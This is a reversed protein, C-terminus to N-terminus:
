KKGSRRTTFFKILEMSSNGIEVDFAEVRVLCEASRTAVAIAREESTM